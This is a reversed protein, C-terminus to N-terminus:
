TAQCSFFFSVWLGSSVAVSFLWRTGKLGADASSGNSTGTITSSMSFNGSSSAKM